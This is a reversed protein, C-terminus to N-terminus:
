KKETLSKLIYNQYYLELKKKLPVKKILEKNKNRLYNYYEKNKSLGFLQEKKNLTQKGKYCLMIVYYHGHDYIAKEEEIKYGIKNLNLRLKALENNSAIILKPPKKDNALINLITTTGMGAIVATNYDEKIEKFGDSIYTNIKLNRKQFNEKAMNLASEKIDSAIVKKCLNNEKLYVCLYGHDCGIDVVIDEKDIFSAITKIRDSIM